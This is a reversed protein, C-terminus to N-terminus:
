PFFVQAVKPRGIEFYRSSPFHEASTKFLDVSDSYALPHHKEDATAAMSNNERNYKRRDFDGFTTPSRLAVLILDDDETSVLAYPDAVSALTIRSENTLHLDELLHPGNLLRLSTPCVKSTFFLQFIVKYVQWVDLDLTLCM